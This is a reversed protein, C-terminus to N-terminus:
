RRDGTAGHEQQRSARDVSRNHVILLRPRRGDLLPLREPHAPAHHLLGQADAEDRRRGGRNTRALCRRCRSTFNPRVCTERAFKRDSRPREAPCSMNNSGHMMWIQADHVPREQLGELLSPLLPTPGNIAVIAGLAYPLHNLGVHTAIVGGQDFGALAVYRPGVLRAEREVLERVQECAEDIQGRLLRDRPALPRAQPEILYRERWERPELSFWRLPETCLRRGPKPSVLIVKLQPCDRCIAREFRSADIRLDEIAVDPGTLWILTAAHEKFSEEADAAERQMDDDIGRAKRRLPKGDRTRPHKEILKGEWRGAGRVLM